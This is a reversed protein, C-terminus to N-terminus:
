PSTTERARVKRKPKGKRTSTTQSRADIPEHIVNPESAPERCDLPEVVRLRFSKGMAAFVRLLLDVSRGDYNADEIRSIVSQTTGALEALEAQELNLEKRLKFILGAIHANLIQREIELTSLKGSDGGATSKKAIRRVVSMAM